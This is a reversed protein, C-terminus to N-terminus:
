LIDGNEYLTELEWGLKKLYNKKSTKFFDILSYLDSNSISTQNIYDAIKNNLYDLDPCDNWNFNEDVDDRNLLINKTCTNNSYTEKGSFTKYAILELAKQEEFM